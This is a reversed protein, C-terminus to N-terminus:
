YGSAHLGLKRGGHMGMGSATWYKKGAGYKEGHCQYTPGGGVGLFIREGRDGAHLGLNRGGHMGVRCALYSEKWRGYGIQMCVLIGVM